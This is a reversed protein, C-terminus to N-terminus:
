FRHKIHTPLSLNLKRSICKLKDCEDTAKTYEPTGSGYQDCISWNKLFCEKVIKELIEKEATTLEM